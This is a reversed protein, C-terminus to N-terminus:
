FTIRVPYGLREWELNRIAPWDLRGADAGARQIIQEDLGRSAKPRSTGWPRSSTSSTSRRIMELYLEGSHWGLGVM